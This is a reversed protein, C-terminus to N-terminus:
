PSAHYWVPMTCCLGDHSSVAQCPVAFILRAHCLRLFSQMTQWLGACCPNACHPVAQCSTITGCPVAYFLRREYM